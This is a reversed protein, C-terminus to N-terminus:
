PTLDGDGPMELEPQAAFELLDPSMVQASGQNERRGELRKLYRDTTPEFFTKHLARFKKSAKKRSGRAGM